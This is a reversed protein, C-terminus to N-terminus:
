CPSDGSRPAAVHVTVGHRQHVFRQLTSPRWRVRHAHRSEGFVVHSVNEREAFAILGAAANRAKVKVVIGGLREVLNTSYVFASCDRFQSGDLGTPPGEVYVAFWIAHLRGALDWGEWIVHSPVGDPDVCAMVREANFVPQPIFPDWSSAFTLADVSLTQRPLRLLADDSLAGEWM